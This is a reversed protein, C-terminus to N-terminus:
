VLKQILEHCINEPTKHKTFIVLRALRQNSPHRVFYENLEFLEDTFEKGAESLMRILRDKLIEISEDMNPSPLLLIVNPHPALANEVRAFLKEDDYVSNSAGFDIVGHHDALIKEVM